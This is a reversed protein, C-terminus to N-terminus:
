SERLEVFHVEADGAADDTASTDDADRRLKFRYKEGVAISDMQAGNTFAITLIDVLGTTGPVTVAGSSQFAAFSDGDVDLQQDGVREFAGQFVVDDAEASSMSYHVYATIGSGGYHRALVDVWVAEWDTAADFDLVPHMNRLDPLAPISAPPTNANPHFKAIMDGSAM